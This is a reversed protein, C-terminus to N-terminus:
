DRDPFKEATPSPKGEWFHKGICHLCKAKERQGLKCVRVPEKEKEEEEGRVGERHGQSCQDKLPM